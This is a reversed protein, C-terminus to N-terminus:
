FKRIMRKKLSKNQRQFKDRATGHCNSCCSDRTRGNNLRRRKEPSLTTRWAEIAPLNDLILLLKWREQASVDGLGNDRLWQGMIKNYKSGVRGTQQQPRSRTRRASKSPGAWPLGIM